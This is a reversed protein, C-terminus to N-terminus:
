ASISRLFIYEALLRLFLGGFMEQLLLSLSIRLFSSHLHLSACWTVCDLPTASSHVCSAKRGLTAWGRILIRSLRSMTLLGAAAILSPSLTSLPFHFTFLLLVHLIFSHLLPPSSLLNTTLSVFDWRGIIGSNM